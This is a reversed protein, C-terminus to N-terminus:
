QIANEPLSIERWDMPDGNEDVSNLDLRGPPSVDGNDLFYGDIAAAKIAAEIARAHEELTM